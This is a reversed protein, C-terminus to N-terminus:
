RVSRIWVYWTLNMSQTSRVTGRLWDDPVRVIAGRLYM